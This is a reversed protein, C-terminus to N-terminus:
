EEDEDHPLVVGGTEVAKARLEKPIGQLALYARALPRLRPNEIKPIHPTSFFMYPHSYTPVSIGMQKKLKEVTDHSLSPGTASLVAEVAYPLLPAIGAATMLLNTKIQNAGADIRVPVKPLAVGGIALSAAPALLSAYLVRRIKKKEEDDLGEFKNLNKLTRVASGTYGVVHPTLAALSLALGAKPHKQILESLARTTLGAGVFAAYPLVHMAARLKRVPTGELIQATSLRHFAEAAPYKKEQQEEALKTKQYMFRLAPDIM